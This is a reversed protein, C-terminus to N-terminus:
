MLPSSTSARKAAFRACNSALAPPAPAYLDEPDGGGFLVAGIDKVVDALVIRECGGLYILQESFCCAAQGLM